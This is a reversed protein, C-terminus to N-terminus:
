ELSQWVERVAELLSSADFHGRRRGDSTSTAGAVADRLQREFERASLSRDAARMDLRQMTQFFRKRDESSLEQMKKITTRDALTNMSNSGPHGSESVDHNSSMKAQPPRKTLLEYEYITERSETFERSGGSFCLLHDWTIYLLGYDQHWVHNTYGDLTMVISGEYDLEVHEPATLFYLHFILSAKCRPNTAAGRLMLAPQDMEQIQEATPVEKQGGAPSFRFEHGEQGSSSSLDRVPGYEEQTQLYALLEAAPLDQALEKVPVWTEGACQSAHLATWAKFFRFFRSVAHLRGVFFGEQPMNYHSSFNPMRIDQRGDQYAAFKPRRFYGSCLSAAAKLSEGDYAGGEGETDTEHNDVKDHLWEALKERNASRKTRGVNDGNKDVPLYKDESEDHGEEDQTAVLTSFGHDAVSKATEDLTNLRAELEKRSKSEPWKMFSCTDLLDPPEAPLGAGFVIKDGFGLNLFSNVVSRRAGCGHSHFNLRDSDLLMVTASAPEAYFLLSFEAFVRFFREILGLYKDDVQVNLWGTSEFASRLRSTTVFSTPADGQPGQEEEIKGELLQEHKRSNGSGEVEPPPPTSSLVVSVKDELFNYLEALSGWERRRYEGYVQAGFTLFDDTLAYKEMGPTSMFSELAEKREDKAKLGMTDSFQKQSFSLISTEARKELRVAHLKLAEPLNDILRNAKEEDRGVVLIKLFENLESKVHLATEFEQIFGVMEPRIAETLWPQERLLRSAWYGLSRMFNDGPERHIVPDVYFTEIKREAKVSASSSAASTEQDTRKEESLAASAPSASSTAQGTDDAALFDESMHTYNAELLPTTSPSLAVGDAGSTTTSGDEKKPAEGKINKTGPADEVHQEELARLSDDDLTTISYGTNDKWCMDSSDREIHILPTYYGIYIDRGFDNRSIEANWYKKAYGGQERLMRAQQRRQFVDKHNQLLMMNRVKLSDGSSLSSTGIEPPTSGGNEVDVHQDVLFDINSMTAPDLTRAGGFGEESGGKQFYEGMEYVLSQPSLIRNEASSFGTKDRHKFPYEHRAFYSHLVHKYEFNKVDSHLWLFEQVFHKDLFPYRAEIGFAGGVLEEKMIYDRMTGGHFIAWPFVEALNEPFRGGLTSQPFIRTGNFGYDSLVEDAGSGTLYVLTGMQRAVGMIQALGMSADDDVVTTRGVNKRSFQSFEYPEACAMLYTRVQQFMNYSYDIITARGVHKSYENRNRIVNMDEQGM